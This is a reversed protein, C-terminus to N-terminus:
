AKHSGMRKSILLSYRLFRDLTLWRVSDTTLIDYRRLRQDVEARYIPNQYDDVIVIGENKTLALIRELIDPRESMIGLDHLIVDFEPPALVQFDDWTFMDQDSLDHSRLFERTKELWEASEDVSWIEPKVRATVQYRRFVFSSFGSGMDLIRAPELAECLSWLLCASEFSIPMGEYSVDETYELYVARIEPAISCSGRVLGGLIPMSLVAREREGKRGLLLCVYKIRWWIGKLRLLYNRLTPRRKVYSRIRSVHNTSSIKNRPM